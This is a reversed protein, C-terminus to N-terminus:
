RHTATISELPIIESQRPQGHHRNLAGRVVNPIFTDEHAIGCVCHHREVPLAHVSHTVSLRPSCLPLFIVLYFSMQVNTILLAKLVANHEVFYHLLEILIETLVKSILM